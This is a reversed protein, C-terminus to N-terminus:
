GKNRLKVVKSVERLHFGVTNTRRHNIESLM